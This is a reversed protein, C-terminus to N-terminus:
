KSRPWRQVPEGAHSHPTGQRPCGCHDVLVVLDRAGPPGVRQLVEVETECGAEDYCAVVMIVSQPQIEEELRNVRRKLAMGM